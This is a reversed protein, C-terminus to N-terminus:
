SSNYLFVLFSYLLNMYIFILSHKIVRDLEQQTNLRNCVYRFFNVFYGTGLSKEIDSWRTILFNFAIPNGIPNSAVGNFLTNINARNISSNADLM